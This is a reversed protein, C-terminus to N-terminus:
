AMSFNFNHLQKVSVYGMQDKIRKSQYSAKNASKKQVTFIHRTKIKPQIFSKPM